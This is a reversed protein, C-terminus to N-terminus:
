VLNRFSNISQLESKLIDFLSSKQIYHAIKSVNLETVACMVLVVVTECRKDPVVYNALVLLFM